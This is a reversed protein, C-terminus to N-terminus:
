TMFFLPITALLMSVGPAISVLAFISRRKAENLTHPGFTGSAEVMQAPDIAMIMFVVIISATAIANGLKNVFSQLSSGLANERYGTKWEIFDLCDGIMAFLVINLVGLPIASIVFFPLSGWFNGYWGVFFALLNSIFGGICSVIM